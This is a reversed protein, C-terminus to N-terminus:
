DEDNSVVEFRGLADGRLVIRRDDQRRVIHLEYPTADGSSYILLHPSYSYDSSNRDTEEPDEFPAPDYDLLIRKGELYLEFEHGDPLARLRLTEDNPVDAWVGNLGDYEVFRYAATMFEIGFERGQMFADDQAVETLAAFRTAETQLEQDDGIIGFSLMGISLVTMVIFIVVLIEVLTFGTETRAFKFPPM